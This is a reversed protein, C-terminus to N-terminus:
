EYIMNNTIQLVYNAKRVAPTSFNWYKGNCIINDIKKNNIYIEIGTLSCSITMTDKFMYDRPYEKLGMIMDSSMLYKKEQPYIFISDSEVGAYKFENLIFFRRRVDSPVIICVTDNELKNEVYFHYYGIPDCSYFLILFVLFFIVNKM